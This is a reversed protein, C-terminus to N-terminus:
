LREGCQAFGLSMLQRVQVKSVGWQQLTQTEVMQLTILMNFDVGPINNLINDSAGANVSPIRGCACPKIESVVAGDPCSSHDRETTRVSHMIKAPRTRNDSGSMCISQDSYIKKKEFALTGIRPPRGPPMCCLHKRESPCFPFSLAIAM